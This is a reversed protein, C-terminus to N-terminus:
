KKQCCLLALINKASINNLAVEKILDQKEFEATPNTNV